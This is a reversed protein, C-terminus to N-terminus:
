HRDKGSKSPASAGASELHVDLNAIDDAEMMAFQNGEISDALSVSAKNDSLMSVVAIKTKAYHNFTNIAKAVNETSAPGQSDTVIIVQPSSKIISNLDVQSHYPSNISFYGLKKIKQELEDSKKGIVLIWPKIKAGSIDGSPEKGKERRGGRRERTM